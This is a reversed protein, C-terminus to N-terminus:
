IGESVSETGLYADRVAPSASVEAASGQFILRGFDIVFIHECLDMVVGMDHEVLLIGVARAAVSVRIVEMLRESEARDLGATPEDLLIVDFAGALCRALEVLRREGTSLRGIPVDLLGGIGTLEVVEDVAQAVVQRDGSHGVIQTLLSRGALGAERGLAVTQAVTMTEFQAPQQFTRGLGRRARAASGLRSIDRGELRVRGSQPRVIGSTVDFLTTKGAGNPGILGTIRGVPAALSVHDVAVVGGFRVTIDTLVLGESVREPVAVTPPPALPVPEAAIAPVPAPAPAPAARAKRRAARESAGSARLVMVLVAVVSAAGFVLSTWSGVNQVDLKIPLLYYAVAAAVAYWPEAIPLVFLVALIVLSGNATFPDASAVNNLSALLAGALGAMFASLAFVVLKTASLTTGQSELTRPADAMGRLLRGLRTRDIGVAVISVLSVVGLVLFYFEKDGSAFSPRPAALSISSGFMLDNGYFFQQLIYAFALTALALFVGSLRIATLAVLAGVVATVVCAGLIALIWPLGHDASLHAFTTAGIAALGLHCLSVQGSTRVLMGLSLFLVVYVLCTTYINVEFGSWSPVFLLVVLLLVASALLTRPRTHETRVGVLAAGWRETLRKTPTVLLAIFLVLVPVAAPLSLLWGATLYRTLVSSAVGIFLGGIYSLPLSTFFGLASAAFAPVLLRGIVSSDPGFTPSLALLVGSAGAFVCGIIWAVRRLTRPSRGCCDILDPNDVVARLALGLRTFKLFLFLAVMAGLSVAMIILQDQGVNVGGIDVNDGPLPPFIFHPHSGVLHPGILGAGGQIALLVGVTAAVRLAPAGRVLVRGLLEFLLGVIAGVVFVSVFAATQWSYGRNFTLYIYADVAVIALGGQAFNLVGSIKYTLTLGTAALGYLAGFTLGVVVFIFIESM